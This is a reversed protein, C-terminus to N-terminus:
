ERCAFKLLLVDEHFVKLEIQQERCVKRVYTEDRDADAGRLGHHVHVASLAFGIEQRLELLVFLLCISDAGGSIGATVRDKKELMHYREVYAKVKQYM